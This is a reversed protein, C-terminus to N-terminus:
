LPNYYLSYVSWLMGGTLILYLYRQTFTDIIALRPPVKHVLLRCSDHRTDISTGLVSERHSLMYNAGEYEFHLEYNKITINQETTEGVPVIRANVKKFYLWMYIVYAIENLVALAAVVPILMNLAQAFAAVWQSHWCLIDLVTAGLLWKRLTVIVRFVM